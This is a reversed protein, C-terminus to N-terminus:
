SCVFACGWESCEDMDPCSYVVEFSPTGWTKFQDRHDNLTSLVSSELALEGPPTELIFHNPITKSAKVVCFASTLGEYLRRADDALIVEKFQNDILHEFQKRYSVWEVHKYKPTPRQGKVVLAQIPDPKILPKPIVNVHISQNM